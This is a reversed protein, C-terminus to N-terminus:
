FHVMVQKTYRSANIITNKNIEGYIKKCVASCNKEKEKIRVESSLVFNEYFLKQQTLSKVMKKAVIHRM